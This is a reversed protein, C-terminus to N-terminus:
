VSCHMHTGVTFGQALPDADFLPRAGPVQLSHLVRFRVGDM